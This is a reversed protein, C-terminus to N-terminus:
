CRRLYRTGGEQNPAEFKPAEKAKGDDRGELDEAIRQM